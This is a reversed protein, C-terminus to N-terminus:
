SGHHGGHEAEAGSEIFPISRDILVIRYDRTVGGSARRDPSPGAEPCTTVDRGVRQPHARRKPGQCLELTPLGEARRTPDGGEVASTRVYMARTGEHSVDRDRSLHSNLPGAECAVLQREQGEDVLHRVATGPHDTTGNSYRSM